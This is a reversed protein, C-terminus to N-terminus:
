FQLFLNLYNDNQLIYIKIVYLFTKYFYFIKKKILYKKLKILIEFFNYFYNKSIFPSM